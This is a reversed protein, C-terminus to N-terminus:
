SESVQNMIFLGISLDNRDSDKKVFDERYNQARTKKILLLFSIRLLLGTHTLHTSEDVKTNLREDCRCEYVLRIQVERIHCIFKRTCMVFV